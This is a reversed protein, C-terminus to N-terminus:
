SKYIPPRAVSAWGRFPALPPELRLRPLEQAVTGLGAACKLGAAVGAYTTMAARRKDASAPVCTAPPTAAHHFACPSIYRPRPWYIKLGGYKMRIRRDLTRWGLAFGLALARAGNREGLGVAAAAATRADPQVAGRERASKRGRTRGATEAHSMSASAAVQAELRSVEAQLRAVQAESQQLRPRMPEDGSVYIARLWGEKGDPLRVHVAEGQRELLEVREGSKLSAVHEGSGDAASNLSVVVQEVVYLSDAARVPPAGCVATLWAALLTARLKM